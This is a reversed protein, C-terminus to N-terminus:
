KYDADTPIWRSWYGEFQYHRIQFKDHALDILVAHGRQANLYIKSVPHAPDLRNAWQADPSDLPTETLDFDKLYQELKM